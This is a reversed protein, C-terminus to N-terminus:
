KKPEAVVKSKFSYSFPVEQNSTIMFIGKSSFSMDNSYSGMKNSKKITIQYYFDASDNKKFKLKQIRQDGKKALFETVTYEKEQYTNKKYNPLQHHHLGYKFFVALRKRIKEKEIVLTDKIDKNELFLVYKNAQENALVEKIQKHYLFEGKSESTDCSFFSTILVFLFGIYVKNM